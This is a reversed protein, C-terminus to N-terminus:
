TFCPRRPSEELTQLTRSTEVITFASCTGAATAGWREGWALIPHFYWTKQGWRNSRWTLLPTVVWIKEPIPTANIYFLNSYSDQSNPIIGHDLVDASASVFLITGQSFECLANALPPPHHLRWVYITGQKIPSHSVSFLNIFILVQRTTFHSDFNKVHVCRCSCCMYEINSIGGWAFAPGGLLPYGYRCM